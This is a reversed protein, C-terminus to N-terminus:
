WNFDHNFTIKIDRSLRIIMKRFSHADGGLLKM